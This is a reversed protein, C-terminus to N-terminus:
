DQTKYKLHLRKRINSELIEESFQAKQSRNNNTPVDTEGFMPAAESHACTKSPPSDNPGSVYAHSSVSGSATFVEPSIPNHRVSLKEPTISAHKIPVKYFMEILQLLFPFVLLCLFPKMQQLLYVGSTGGTCMCALPGIFFARALYIAPWQVSVRRSAFNGLDLWLRAHLNPPTTIPGNFSLAKKTCSREFTCGM